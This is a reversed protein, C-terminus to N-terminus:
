GRLQQSRATMPSQQGSHRTLATHVTATSPAREGGTPAQLTEQGRYDQSHQGLVAIQRTPRAFRPIPRDVAWVAGVVAWRGRECQAVKRHWSDVAHADGCGERLETEIWM